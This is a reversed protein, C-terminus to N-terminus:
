ILFGSTSCPMPNEQTDKPGHDKKRLGWDILTTSVHMGSRSRILPQTLEDDLVAEVKRDSKASQRRLAV